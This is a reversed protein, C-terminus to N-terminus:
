SEGEAIVGNSKCGIEDVSFLTRFGKELRRQDKSELKDQGTDEIVDLADREQGKVVCGVLKRVIELRCVDNMAAIAVAEYVHSKITFCSDGNGHLMQAMKSCYQQRYQELEEPSNERANGPYNYMIPDWDRTIWGPFSSYGLFRPVIQVNDWDIIGTVNGREDIMVNQSDYDPPALVFTELGQRTSPLNTSFPLCRIMSAVLERSGITLPHGHGLHRHNELCHQLYSKSTHFPGFKEVALKQGYDQDNIHGEDWKYCPGITINDRTNDGNSQLSGIKDFQFRQLQSIAEALTDLTRQRREELPTPGTRDFWKSSIPFGPVFSMIIYPAGIENSTTLDMAYIDPLPVTTERRILGMTFAQSELSKRATETFRRGWGTAPVRIVYKIGDAFEVVHILNYSGYLRSVVWCKEPCNKSGPWNRDRVTSALIILSEHSISLLSGFREQLYGENSSDSSHTSSM